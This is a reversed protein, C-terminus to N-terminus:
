RSALPPQPAVRQRVRPSERPTHVANAPHPSPLRAARARARVQKMITLCMMCDHRDEFTVVRM